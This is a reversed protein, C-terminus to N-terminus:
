QIESTAFGVQDEVISLRIDWTLRSRYKYLLIEVPPTDVPYETSRLDMTDQPGNDSAVSIILVLRIQVHCPSRYAASTAAPVKWRKM